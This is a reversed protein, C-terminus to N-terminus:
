ADRQPLLRPTTWAPLLRFMVRSPGSLDAHPALRVDEVPCAPETGSVFRTLGGDIVLTGAGAGRTAWWSADHCAFAEGDANTPEITVGMDEDLASELLRMARHADGRYPYWTPLQARLNVLLSPDNRHGEADIGYSEVLRALIEPMPTGSTWLLSRTEVLWSARALLLALGDLATPEGRDSADAAAEVMPPPLFADLSTGRFAEGDESRSFEPLEPEVTLDVWRLGHLSGSAARWAWEIPATRLHPGTM